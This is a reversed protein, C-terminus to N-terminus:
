EVMKNKNKIYMCGHQWLTTSPTSEVLTANLGLCVFMWQIKGLPTSINITRLSLLAELNVSQYNLTSVWLLPQLVNCGDSSCIIAKGVLFKSWFTGRNTVTFFIVKTMKTLDNKVHNIHNHGNQSISHHIIQNTLDVLM